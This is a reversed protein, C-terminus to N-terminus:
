SGTVTETVTVQDGSANVTASANLSTEFVMADTADSVVMSTFAAIAYLTISSSTSYTWVPTLTYTVPSTASTLAYPAITRGLGNTTQEGSLSTDTASPTINTSSIGVFWASTAGGDAILWAWPTTPTTAASGGPTAAVYWRDITLVSAGASNTNSIINGWVILTGTTSYCYVRKGAWQNTTFTSTTTLTTATAATGGGTAGVAGGGLANAWIGRGVNTLLGNLEYATAAPVGPALLRSGVQRYYVEDYVSPRGVPIQYFESTIRAIEDGEPTGDVNAVWKPIDTAHKSWLNPIVLAAEHDPRRTPRDFLLSDALHRRFDEVDLGPELTLGGDGMPFHVTTTSPSGETGPTPRLRSHNGLEIVAM